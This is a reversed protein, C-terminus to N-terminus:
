QKTAAEFVEYLKDIGKIAHKPLREGDAGFVLMDVRSEVVCKSEDIKGNKDTVMSLNLGLHKALFMYSIERKSLGYDHGEDPFHKNEVLEKKDYFGYTRQLFPYEVTPVNSTWDKSNSIVLQPNPALMAAIEVNNTGGGCLHIPKGSECPCGGAFHASLMVTPISVTIRKDIAAMLMTQSGGGSGGTIAVRTTDANKLTCLYDLIRTANLTQMTHAMSSRHDKIEFQLLSEGWAFLDYSVAIAGMRAQAACRLQHDSRYRGDSFHGNPNLVIPSLGKNKLPKYISGTAYVGPLVEIAFNEVTYGDYKRPKTLIPASNPSKPMPSLDLAAIMCRRLSDRRAEWSAKDHYLTALYDLFEKGEDPQRFPYDYAKIRYAGDREYEWKLDFPALINTLSKEVSYPRLRWDAYTLTKGDVMNDNYKVRVDFRQQVEVLVDKLPRKYLSDSSQSNCLKQAAAGFALTLAVFTILTKKMIYIRKKHHM